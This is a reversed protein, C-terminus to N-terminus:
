DIYGIVRLLSSHKLGSKEKGEADLAPEMDESLHHIYYREGFEKKQEKHYAIAKGGGEVEFLFGPNRAM